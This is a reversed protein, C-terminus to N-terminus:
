SVPELTLEGPDYKVLAHCNLCEVEVELPTVVTAGDEDAVILAFRQEVGSSRCAACQFDLKARLTWKEMM